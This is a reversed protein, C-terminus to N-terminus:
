LAAAKVAFGLRRGVAAAYRGLTDVTPNANHGNELKSLAGRDIGSREAVDALSLGQQERIRRLEALTEVLDQYVGLPMPGVYEGSAVLEDIGPRETQFRARAAVLRAREEPTREIKRYVRNVTDDKEM